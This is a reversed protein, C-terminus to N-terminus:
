PYASTNVLTANTVRIRGGALMMYAIAVRDNVKFLNNPVKRLIRYELVIGTQAGAEPVPDSPYDLGLENIWAVVDTYTNGSLSMDFSSTVDVTLIGPRNIHNLEMLAQFLKNNSLENTSVKKLGIIFPCITILIIRRTTGAATLVTRLKPYAITIRREVPITM